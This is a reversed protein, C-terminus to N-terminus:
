QATFYLTSYMYYIPPTLPTKLWEELKMTCSFITRKINLNGTALGSVTDGVPDTKGSRPRNGSRKAM